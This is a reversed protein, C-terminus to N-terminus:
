ELNHKTFKVLPKRYHLHAVYRFFVVFEKFNHILCGQAQLLGQENRDGPYKRKNERRGTNLGGAMTRPREREKFRGGKEVESVKIGVDQPKM